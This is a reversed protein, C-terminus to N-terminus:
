TNSKFEIPHCNEFEEFTKEFYYPDSGDYNNIEGELSNTPRVFGGYGVANGSEDYSIYHYEMVMLANTEISICDKEITDETACYILGDDSVSLPYEKDDSYIIGCCFYRGTEDKLYPYAELAYQKGDVEFTNEAIFLVEEDSGLVKAYGYSEEDILNAIIEEHSDFLDKQTREEMANSPIFDPMEAAFEISNILESVAANIVATKYEDDDATIYTEIVLVGEAHPLFIFSNDVSLGNASKTDETELIRLELSDKGGISVNNEETPETTSVFSDLAERASSYATETFAVYCLGASDEIYKFTTCMNDEDYEKSFYQSGYDVCWNLGFYEQDNNIEIEQIASNVDETSEAQQESSEQAQGSNDAKKGCGSLMTMVVASCCVIALLRKSM